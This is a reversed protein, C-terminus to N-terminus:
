LLLQSRLQSRTVHHNQFYVEINVGQTRNRITERALPRHASWSLVDGIEVEDGLLEVISFGEETDVAVMGRRANIYRVTGVM